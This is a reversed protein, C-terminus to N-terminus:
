EPSWIVLFPRIPPNFPHSVKITVADGPRLGSAARHDGRFFELNEAFIGPINPIGPTERKGRACSSCFFNRLFDSGKRHAARRMCPCCLLDDHEQSEGTVIM